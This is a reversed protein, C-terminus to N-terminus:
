VNVNCRARRKWRPRAREVRYDRMKALDLKMVNDAMHTRFDLGYPM